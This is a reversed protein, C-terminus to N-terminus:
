SDSQEDLLVIIHQKIFWAEVFFALCRGAILLGAIPIIVWYITVLSYKVVYLWLPLLWLSIVAWQGFLSNFNDAMVLTVLRPQDTTTPEKWNRGFQHTCVFTLWELSPIIFGYDPYLKGWIMSRTINDLVVDLWAGFATAQQLRRAAIGDLYDLACSLLYLALFIAPRGWSM